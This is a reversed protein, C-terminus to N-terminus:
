EPDFMVKSTAGFVVFAAFASPLSEPVIFTGEMVTAALVIWVTKQPHSVEATPVIVVGDPYVM